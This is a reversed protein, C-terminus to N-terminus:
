LYLIIKSIAKILDGLLSKDSGQYMDTYTCVYMCGSTMQTRQETRGELAGESLLHTCPSTIISCSTEESIYNHLLLERWKREGGEERGGRLPRGGEGREGRGRGRRVESWM